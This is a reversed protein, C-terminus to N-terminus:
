KTLPKPGARPSLYESLAASEPLFSVHEMMSSCEEVAQSDHDLCPRKARRCLFWLLSDNIEESESIRAMKILSKRGGTGLVPTCVVPARHSATTEETDVHAPYMSTSISLHKNRRQAIIVDESACSDLRESAM